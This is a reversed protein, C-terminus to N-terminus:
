RRRRIIKCIFSFYCGLTTIVISRAQAYLPDSEKDAQICTPDKSIWLAIAAKHHAKFLRMPVRGPHNGDFFKDFEDQWNQLLGAPVIVLVSGPTYGVEALLSDAKGLEADLGVPCKDDRPM